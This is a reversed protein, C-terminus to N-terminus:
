MFIIDFLNALGLFSCLTTQYVNGEGSATSTQSSASPSTVASHDSYHSSAPSMILGFAATRERSNGSEKSGRQL